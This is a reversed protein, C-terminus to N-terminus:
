TSAICQVYVVDCFKALFNLLKGQMITHIQIVTYMCLEYSTSVNCLVPPPLRCLGYYVGFDGSPSRVHCIFTYMHVYM